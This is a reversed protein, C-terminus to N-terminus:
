AVATTSTGVIQWATGNDTVLSGTGAGAGQGSVRADTAFAIRGKTTAGPTPLTAVTFNRARADWQGTGTNTSTGVGAVGAAVRYVSTDKTGSRSDQGTTSTWAFYANAHATIGSGDLGVSNITTRILSIAQIIDGGLLVGNADGNVDFGFIKAGTDSRLIQFIATTGQNAGARITVTTVGTTPTADYFQALSGAAITYATPGFRTAGTVQQTGNLLFVNASLVGDPLANAGTVNAAPIATLSAGSGSFTTATLTGTVTQGVSFNNNANKLAVNASLRADSLTGATLQTATVAHPNAHDALHAALGSVVGNVNGTLSGYNGLSYWAGFTYICLSSFTVEAAGDYALDGVNPTLESLKVKLGPDFPVRNIQGAERTSFNAYGTGDASPGTAYTNAAGSWTVSATAGVARWACRGRINCGDARVNVIGPQAEIFDLCDTTAVGSMVLEVPNTAPASSQVHLAFAPTGLDSDTITLRPLQGDTVFIFRHATRDAGTIVFGDVLLDNITRGGDILIFAGGLSGTHRGQVRCGNITGTFNIFAGVSTAGTRDWTANTVALQNITGSGGVFFTPHVGSTSPFETYNNLSWGNVTSGNGFLVCGGNILTMGPTFQLGDISLGDVTMNGGAQGVTLLGTRQQGAGDVKWNRISLNRVRGTASAHTGGNYPDPQAAIVFDLGHVNEFSLNTITAEIPGSGGPWTVNGPEILIGTNNATGECSLNRCRVDDIPGDPPNYGVWDHANVAVIGDGNKMHAGDVVIRKCNGAIHVCDRPLNEFYLRELRADQVGWLHIVYGHADKISFDRICLNRVGFFVLAGMTTLQSVGGFTRTVFPWRWDGGTTFVNTSGIPSYIHLGEITINQDTGVTDALMDAPPNANGFMTQSAAGTTNEIRVAGQFVLRTNPQILVTGGQVLWRYDYTQQPFVAAGGAAATVTRAIAPRDDRTGNPIGGFWRVDIPYQWVRKWRGTGGADPALILGGDATATSTADWEFIGGGGDGAAYFGEVLRRDGAGPVDATLAAVSAVSALGDGAAGGSQAYHTAVALATM